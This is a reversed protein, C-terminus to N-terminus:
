SRDAQSALQLSSLTIDSVSLIVSVDATWWWYAWLALWTMNFSILSTVSACVTYHKDAWSALQSETLSDLYASDWCCEILFLAASVAAIFM